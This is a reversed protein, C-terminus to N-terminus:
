PVDLSSVGSEVKWWEWFEWFERWKWVGAGAVCCGAGTGSACLGPLIAFFTTHRNRVKQTCFFPAFRM